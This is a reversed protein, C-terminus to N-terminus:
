IYLNFNIYQIYIYIYINTLLILVYINFNIYESVDCFPIEPSWDKKSDEQNERNTTIIDLKIDGNLNLPREILKESLKLVNSTRELPKLGGNNNAKTRKECDNEDNKVLNSDVILSKAAINSITEGCNKCSKDDCYETKCHEVKPSEHVSNDIVGRESDRLHEGDCVHTEKMNSSTENQSTKVSLMSAGVSEESTSTVQQETASNFTVHETAISPHSKISPNQGCSSNPNTLSLTSTPSDNM